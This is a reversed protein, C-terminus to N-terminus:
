DQLRQFYRNCANIVPVDSLLPFLLRLLSLLFSSLAPLQRVPLSTNQLLGYFKYIGWSVELKDMFM